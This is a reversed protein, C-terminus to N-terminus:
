EYPDHYLTKSVNKVKCNGATDFTQPALLEKLGVKDHQVLDFEILGGGTAILRGDTEIPTNTPFFLAYHGSPIAFYPTSRVGNKSIQEGYKPIVALYHKRTKTEESSLYDTPQVQILYDYFVNDPLIYWVGNINKLLKVWGQSCITHSTLNTIDYTICMGQLTKINIDVKFHEDITLTHAYTLQEFHKEGNRNHKIRCDPCNYVRVLTGNDLYVLEDEPIFSAYFEYPDSVEYSRLLFVLIITLIAVLLPSLPFIIRSSISLRNM